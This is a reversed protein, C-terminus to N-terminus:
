VRSKWRFRSTPHAGLVCVIVNEQSLSWAHVRPATHDAEYLLLHHARALLPYAVDYLPGLFLIVYDQSGLREDEQRVGLTHVSVM